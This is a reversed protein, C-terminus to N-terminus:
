RRERYSGFTMQVVSVSCAEGADDDDDDDDDGEGPYPKGAAKAAARLEGEPDLVLERGDQEAAAEDNYYDDGFASAMKADWNSPDFDADMDDLVSMGLDAGGAKRLRQEMEKKKLNKLRKLDEAAAAREAEKRAKKDARKQKRRDDPRRAAGEEAAATRRAHGIIETNGEEFRFNYAQEYKDAKSDFAEETEDDAGGAALLKRKKSGSKGKELWRQNIIYDQLFEEADLETQEEM